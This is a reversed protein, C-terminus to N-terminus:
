SWCMIAGNSALNAPPGSSFAMSAAWSTMYSAQFELSLFRRIANAFFASSIDREAGVSIDQKRLLRSSVQILRDLEVALANLSAFLRNPLVREAVINSVEPSQKFGTRVHASAMTKRLCKPVFTQLVFGRHM